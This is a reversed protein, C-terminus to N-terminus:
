SIKNESICQKHMIIYTYLWVLVEIDIQKKRTMNQPNGGVEEAAKCLRERWIIKLKPQM